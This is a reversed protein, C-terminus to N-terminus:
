NREERSLSLGTESCDVLFDKGAAAWPEQRIDKGIVTQIGQSLILESSWGISKVILVLM